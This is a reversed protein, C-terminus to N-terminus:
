VCFSGPDFRTEESAPRVGARTRHAIWRRKWKEEFRRRNADFIRNYEDPPLKSFSAQGFHHVFCDEAVVVRLGREKVKLSLDDDEFMGIEYREDLGGLEKFVSNRMLACYLPVVAVDHLEGRRARAISLAFREMEQQNRYDVTIKVENGAFNTVPCILGISPDRQLHRLLRGLWGPTVLTDANLFVLYDGTALGAAVNNAGAFGRNSALTEIRTQPHSSALRRAIPVTDDISHNDVLIVELNPYENRFLARLAPGIYEACNYTVVLVSIKPFKGRIASDLAAVRSAWTNKRAFDIRAQRRQPDVDAVAEDLKQAFEVAGEALWCLGAVSHLEQMATAVVPKGQSLYEYLKVPDTAHTVQNLKFPIICVDFAALLSPMQEYPRSGLFRVNPLAELARIDRDFVQGALVFSYQPRSRAVEYLLDLDIWDAIAGFYGIVPEGDRRLGELPQASSFFDFDAGNRALVPALPPTDFKRRLREATVALVDCEGALKREESRNFEGLNEFTDWDDMCDYLMVGGHEERLQLALRRWFPLQVLIASESVAFDRYVARLGEAFCAVAGPAFEKLYLDMAPARLRIEWINERLKGIQYPAPSDQPITKTATVWLVRHGERALQAAIQQPRQFRFDFDIIALVIVDYKRPPPAIVDPTKVVAPVPVALPHLYEEPKPFALEYDDLPERPGFVLRWWGSWGGRVVLTYARRIALMIKWARQARYERLRRDFAESFRSASESFSGVLRKLQEEQEKASAEIAAKERLSRDLNERNRLLEAQLRDEQEKASAEIAAKERLSRDLNERNRLLEAQLRDKEEASRRLETAANEALKRSDRLEAELSALKEHARRLEDDKLRAEQVAADSRVRERQLDAEAAIRLALTDSLSATLEAVTNDSHVAAQPEAGGVTGWGAVIYCAQEPNIVSRHADLIKQQLPSDIGSLNRIFMETWTEGLYSQAAFRLGAAEFCQRFDIIPYEAGFPWNGAAANHIRSIWYWYCHRNPALVVVHRRSRSAMGRLLRVQQDFHYHEIVGSNFVLDYEPEGPRFADGLIFRAPLGAEKFVSRAADLAASSFDLLDVQFRGSQALALSQWGAGCGAELIRGGGPLIGQIFQAFQKGFELAELPPSSNISAYYATWKRKEAEIADTESSEKPVM